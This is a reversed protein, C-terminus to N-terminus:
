YLKLELIDGLNILFYKDATIEEGNLPFIFDKKYLFLGDIEVRMFPADPDYRNRFHIETFDNRLAGDIMLRSIWHDKYERYEVKKEGSAILIFWKKNLTLHLIKM